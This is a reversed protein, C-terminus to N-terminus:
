ILGGNELKQYEPKTRLLIMKVNEGIEKRLEQKEFEGMNDIVLNAMNMEVLRKYDQDYMIKLKLLEDNHKPQELTKAVVEKIVKENDNKPELTEEELNPVVVDSRKGSRAHQLDDIPATDSSKIIGKVALMKKAEEALETYDNKVEELIVKHRLGEMIETIFPGTKGSAFTIIDNGKLAMDSISTIPMNRGISEIYSKQSTIEQDICTRIHDVSLLLDVGYDFVHLKNIDDKGIQDLAKLMIKLKALEIRDFCTNAPIGNNLFYCLAFKESTNLKKYRKAVIPLGKQYNNLHCYVGLKVLKKTARKGHKGDFIKLLEASVKQEAIESAYKSTNEIGSATKFSLRFGFRSMLTFARLIRLPDERFRKKAKGIVRITKFRLDRTGKCLDVIKLNNTMAIANITFDRRNIDVLLSQSYYKSSPHRSVTYTEERFTSVEFSYEGDRIVVCGDEAFEMSASPFALKIASPTASTAIDIDVFDKKLIYDRPMGGVFYAQYTLQHLREIIAIGKQLYEQQNM